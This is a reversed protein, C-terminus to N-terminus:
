LGLYKKLLYDAGNVTGALLVMTAMANLTQVVGSGFGDLMGLDIKACMNGAIGILISIAVIEFVKSLFGKLWSYFTNSVEGGAPLTMWAFPAIVILFYTQLYRKYVALFITGSCILSINFYVIGFIFMFFVSSADHHIQEMQLRSGAGELFLQSLLSSIKFFIKMLDRGHLLGFNAFMFRILNELLIEVTYNERLKVAQRLIGIMLMTDIVMAAVTLSINYATGMAYSWATSSFEEPTATISGTILEMMANWLGTGASYSLEEGLAQFFADFIDNVVDQGLQALMGPIKEIAEPIKGITRFMNEINEFFEGFAALLDEM